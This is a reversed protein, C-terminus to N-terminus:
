APKSYVSQVNCYAKLGDVGCEVGFGSSKHCGFAVNPESGAKLKSAIQNAQVMDKSWVSAGLGYETDNARSIVDSEDRWKLVPLIPGFPEEVVPRSKEPPNDLVIPPIFLGQSDANLSNKTAIKFDNRKIHDLLETVRDHQAQHTIPGIFTNEAFGDGVKLNSEVFEVIAALFADYISEHVYVRKVAMYLQGSNVLLIIAVKPIIAPDNGGMELTVRKFGNSCARLIKKGTTVSGTFAVKDVDPHETIWPGLRDDGSLAQLVGPPFLQLGLEVVKLCCYPTFPSPKLIFVNGTLLAAPIKFFSLMLPFNWPVIGVAVGLPTYREIVRREETEEIVNDPLSLECVGRIWKVCSQVEIRAWFLPKGNEKVLMESFLETQAELAAAYDELKKKREAWPTQAWAEAASRAANVAKNVDEQTSLPVEPNSELTSPNIRHYTEGSSSGTLQGNVVNHFTTFQLSSESM